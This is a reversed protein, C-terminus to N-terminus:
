AGVEPAKAKALAANIGAVAWAPLHLSPGGDRPLFTIGPDFGSMDADLADELPAAFTRWERAYLETSDTYVGGPLRYKPLKSM